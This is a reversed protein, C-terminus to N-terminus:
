GTRTHLKHITFKSVIPYITPLVVSKVSGLVKVERGRVTVYLVDKQLMKRRRKQQLYM